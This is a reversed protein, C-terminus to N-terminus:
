FAFVSGRAAALDLRHDSAMSELKELDSEANPVPSLQDVIQWHIQNGSLGLLRNFRERELRAQAELKALDLQIQAYAIQQQHLDLESITGADYQRQSLDAAAENVEVSTKLGAIVQQQAQLAYFTKQVEHRLELVQGAIHLKTQELNQKALKKRR